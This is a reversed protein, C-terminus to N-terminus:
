EVKAGVEVGWRSARTTLLPSTLRFWMVVQYTVQLIYMIVQENRSTRFIHVIEMIMNYKVKKWLSWWLHRGTRNDGSPAGM